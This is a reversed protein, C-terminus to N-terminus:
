LLCLAPQSDPWSVVVGRAGGEGASRNSRLFVSFSFCNHPQKRGEWGLLPSLSLCCLFQPTIFGGSSLHPCHPLTQYLMTCCLVANTFWALLGLTQHREIVTHVSCHPFFLPHTSLFFSSPWNEKACLDYIM